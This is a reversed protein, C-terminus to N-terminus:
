SLNTQPNKLMTSKHKIPHTTLIVDSRSLKSERIHMGIKQVPCKLEHINM